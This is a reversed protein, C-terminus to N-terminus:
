KLGDLASIVSNASASAQGTSKISTSLNRIAVISKKANEKDAPTFGLTEYNQMTWDFDTPVEIEQASAYGLACIAFSLIKM